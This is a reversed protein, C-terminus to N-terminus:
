KDWPVGCASSGVISITKPPCKTCTAPKSDASFTNAPCKKCQSAGAQPAIEGPQCPIPETSGEIDCYFGPPCKKCSTSGSHNEYTGAPCGACTQSSANKYEGWGCFDCFTRGHIIRPIANAPCQAGVPPTLDLVYGAILKFTASCSPILVPNTTVSFTEVVGTTLTITLTRQATNSAVEYQFGTGNSSYTTLIACKSGALVPVTPLQYSSSPLQSNLCFRVISKSGQLYKVCELVVHLARHETGGFDEFCTRGTCSKRSVGQRGATLPPM